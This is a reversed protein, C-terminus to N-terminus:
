NASKGSPTRWGYPLTSQSKRITYRAIADVLEAATSPSCGAVQTLLRTAIELDRAPDGNPGPGITEHTSHKM